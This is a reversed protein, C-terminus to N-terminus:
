LMKTRVFQFGRGMLRVEEEEEGSLPTEQHLQEPPPPCKRIRSSKVFSIVYPGIQSMKIWCLPNIGLLANRDRHAM